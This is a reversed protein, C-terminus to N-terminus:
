LPRAEPHTAHPDGCYLWWTCPDGVLRYHTGTADCQYPESELQLRRRLARMLLQQYVTTGYALQESFTERHLPGWTKAIRAHTVGLVLYHTHIDPEPDSHTHQFLVGILDAPTPLFRSYFPNQYACHQWETAQLAQAVALMQCHEVIVRRETELCAWLQAVSPDARFVLEVCDKPAVDALVRRGDPSRGHVLHLFAVREVDSGNPIGFLEALNWWKGNPQDGGFRVTRSLFYRPDCPDLNLTKKPQIM